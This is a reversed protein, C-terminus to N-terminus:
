LKLPLAPEFDLGAGSFKVCCKESVAALGPESVPIRFLTVVEILPTLTSAM